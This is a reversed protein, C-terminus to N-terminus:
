VSGSRGVPKEGVCLVSTGLPVSVRGVLSRELRTLAAAARDIPRATRDLGLEPQGSRNLRRTAWVPPVLWSFVHTLVRVEFGQRELVARLDARTYRRVHGLAEDASSWLWQHGPVNVVVRGGPALVRWAEALARGPEDLHELVDLFCVVAVHESALPLGDVSARVGHFGYARHACGVLDANGEVVVVDAADWGLRSTVGGAGAGVDVLVPREALPRAPESRALARAVLAAKSRFWWHRRDAAMLLEANTLDFIGGDSHAASGARQAVDANRDTARKV